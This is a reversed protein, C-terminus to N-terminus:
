SGRIFLQNTTGVVWIETNKTKALVASKNSPAKERHTDKVFINHFNFPFYFCCSTIDASFLIFHNIFFDKAFGAKGWYM